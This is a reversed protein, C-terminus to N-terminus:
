PTGGVISGYMARIQDETYIASLYAAGSERLKKALMEFLRYKLLLNEARGKYDHAVFDCDDADLDGLRRQTNQEDVRYRVEFVGVFKTPDQDDEYEAAAQEFRAAGTSGKARRRSLVGRIASTLIYEAHVKMWETLLDPDRQSLDSVLDAAMLSPVIDGQADLGAEILKTMEASYDRIM